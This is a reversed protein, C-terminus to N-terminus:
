PGAARKTGGVHTIGPVDRCGVRRAGAGLQKEDCKLTADTDADSLPAIGAM